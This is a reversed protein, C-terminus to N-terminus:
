RKDHTSKEYPIHDFETETFVSSFKSTLADAKNEDIVALSGNLKCFLFAKTTTTKYILISLYPNLVNVQIM